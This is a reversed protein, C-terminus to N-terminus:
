FRLKLFPSSASVNQISISPQNGASMYSRIIFYNTRYEVVGPSPSYITTGLKPDALFDIVQQQTHSNVTLNATSGKSQSTNQGSLIIQEVGKGDGLDRSLVVQGNIRATNEVYNNPKGTWPNLRNDRAYKLGGVAGTISGTAFGGAAGQGVNSWFNGGSFPTSLGGVVAGTALGSVAGTLARQLIPSSIKGFVNSVYPTIAGSVAGSAYGTVAGMTTSFALSGINLNSFNGGNAFHNTLSNGLGLVAGAAMPGGYLGAEGAAAGTIFYGFADGIGHVNGSIIQSGLNIIAGLGAAILDDIGFYRGDPDQGTTFVNAMALYPSAFQNAPDQNHWRGLQPDYYRAEFDYEELGSGDYFEGNQMEKGQYGFNTQLKGYARSTLAYMTLGDPYYHMENLLRGRTHVVQLNDFYVDWNSENSCYVYLYGSKAVNINFSHPKFQDATTSIPDFGSGISVPRFQEDFLIWSINARPSSAPVSSSNLIPSLDGTTPVNANLLAGNALGKSGNVVANTGAFANIFASAVTSVLYTTNNVSGGPNHWLSRGYVQVADGAMVKMAIGMGFKDGTAGNLKYMKTSAQTPNVTPDPPAGLGNNSNNNYSNGSVSSYWTLASMTVLHNADNTINYFTQETALGGAELTAAPYYDTQQEDTLTMRVNGLHDRIFYDFVWTYSSGSPKLRCRGEEQAVFLLAEDQKLQANVTADSYSKSQYVFGGIYTTITTISTTYNNIGIKVVAGNELVTKRLKNGSADYEYTITGKSFTIVRPLNLVNYTISTIGKNADSTLNGNYDYAYDNAAGTKTVNAYHFDGIKSSANNSNDVVYQLRNSNESGQYHYVLNDINPQGGLVFGNQNLGTINGNLDYATSNVSFDMYSKDWTSGSRNQLFSAATLQNARDYQYDYKRPVGDGKTKWIQGSITGDLTPASFSTTGVTAAAKDYGLEMGFWNSTSGPITFTKNIGTNWGRVNYDYNLTELGSGLVKNKIQNNEKYAFASVTKDGSSITNAGIVTSLSKVINLLRGSHDYTMKTLVASSQSGTVLKNQQEYVRLPLGAWSYQTTAKDIGGTLNTGQTQVIRGTNDYFSVVFLYKTGNSELVETKSGTVLGRTMSTQSIPQPYPATSNSAAYFISTNSTNSADLSSGLGSGTSAVWSYNDYWTQTLVEITYSGVNPYAASAIALNQHYARNNYNSADTMLGTAIPRDQSDYQYYQWKQKNRLNGDQTMVVRGRQDYVTWVEGATGSQTGPNRRIIMRGFDDYEFRYCLDDAYAASITWTGDILGIVKPTIIFRLNGFDDYVYYTCIWGTHPSGTGGDTTATSYQVKKLIVHGDKDGYQITQNGKEDTIITKYLQGTGYAAASTPISGAAANINWIRVNETAVYTVNRVTSGKSSGVWSSGQNYQKLVRSQPSNELDVQSYFNTEGPYLGQNFTTQLSTANSKFAGDNGSVFPLYQQTEQGFSNYVHMTVADQQLPSTQKSVLQVPRGFGDVFQTSQVVEQVTRSTSIIDAETSVPKQAVWTKQTNYSQALTNFSFFCVTLVLTIRTFNM